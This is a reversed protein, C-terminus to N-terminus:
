WALRLTAGLFVTDTDIDKEEDKLEKKDEFRYNGSIDLYLIPLLELNLGARLAYFPADAFEGDSYTMGIGIGGYISRGLLIYAEPAVASEGFRDPLFELDLELGLISPWYQYSVLLALGEEDIDEEGPDIDELATWYNAGIGFRHGDAGLCAPARFFAFCLAFILIGKNMKNM